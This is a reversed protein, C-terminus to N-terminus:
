IVVGTKGDDECIEAWSDFVMTLKKENLIAIFLSAILATEHFEGLFIFYEPQLSIEIAFEYNGRDTEFLHISQCLKARHIQCNARDQVRLTM